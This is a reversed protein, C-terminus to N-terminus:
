AKGGPKGLKSPNRSSEKVGHQRESDKGPPAMKPAASNAISLKTLQDRQEDKHASNELKKM